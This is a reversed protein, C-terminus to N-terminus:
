RAGAQRLLIMATGEDTLMPAPVAPFEIAVLHDEYREAASPRAALRLIHDRPEEIGVTCCAPARDAHRHVLGPRQEDRVIDSVGNPAHGRRTLAHHELKGTAASARVLPEPRPPGNRSWRGFCQSSSRGSLCVASAM